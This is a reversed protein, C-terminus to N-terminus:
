VAGRKPIRGMAGAKAPRDPAYWAALFARRAVHLRSLFTKYHLGLAAAAAEYNGTIALTMIAEQDIPRLTSWVQWLAIRDIVLGEPNPAPRGIFDWYRWFRPSSHPGSEPRNYAYGEHRMEARSYARAARQGAHLLETTTPKQTAGLVVEVIRDYAAQYFDGSRGHEYRRTAIHALRQLHGLDYGYRVEVEDPRNM